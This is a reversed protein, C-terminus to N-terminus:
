RAPSWCSSSGPWSGSRSTAPVARTSRPLLLGVIAAVLMVGAAVGLLGGRLERAWEGLIAVPIVGLGTALTTLTAVLVLELM